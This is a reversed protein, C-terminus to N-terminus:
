GLQSQIANSIFQLLFMAVLPSLDLGGLGPMIRRIPDLIPETVASLMQVLPNRPDMNFWSLIARVFIAVTFFTFVLWVLQSGASQGVRDGFLGFGM